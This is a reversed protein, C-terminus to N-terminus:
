RRAFCIGGQGRWRNPNGGRQSRPTGPDLRYLNGDKTHVYEPVGTIDSVGWDTDSGGGNFDRHPAPPAYLNDNPHQSFPQRGPHSKCGYRREGARSPHTHGGAVLTDGPQLAEAGRDSNCQTARVTQDQVVYTSGRRIIWFAREQRENPAAQMAAQHGGPTNPNSAAMMDAFGKRVAPDDLVADGTPSCARVAVAVSAQQVSGLVDASVTASGSEYLVQDCVKTPATCSFQTLAPGPDGSQWSWGTVSYTRNMRTRSTFKVSEGPWILDKDAILQLLDPLVEVSVTASRATGNM